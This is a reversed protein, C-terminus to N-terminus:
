GETYNLQEIVYFFNEKSEKMYEIVDTHTGFTNNISELIQKSILIKSGDNLIFDFHDELVCDIANMQKIEIIAPDLSFIKSSALEIYSEILTDTVRVDHYKNITEAIIAYPIEEYLQQRIQITLHEQLQNNKISSRAEELNTYDTLVGDILVKNDVTEIIISGYCTGQDKIDSGAVTSYINKQFQKFYM